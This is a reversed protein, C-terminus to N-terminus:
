SRVKPAEELFLLFAKWTRDREYDIEEKTPPERNEPDEWGTIETNMLSFNAGPRLKKIAVDIGYLHFM